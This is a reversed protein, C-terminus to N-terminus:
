GKEVAMACAENAAPELLPCHYPATITTYQAVIVPKRKPFPIRSQDQDPDASESHLFEVFKAASSIESAVIFQDVTNAVALFAHEAPSPQRSNFEVILEELAPKTLGQISVMPRSEIGSNPKSLVQCCPYHLQPIAGSLMQIGLIREGIYYLSNEDTLSAFVAAVAIGQSHGVAVNFRKVLEGPSIGLTKYLVMVHMLQILGVIPLAVPTSTLYPANPMTDPTTLWAFVNLGKSYVFSIRRDQSERQMFDSMHSVFDSLLPRYVDFLWVAEDITSGFGRQGGFLAMLSVSDSSFLAPLPVASKHPSDAASWASFYGRLVRQAAPKDLGHAQIIVHIDSEATGYTQCFADFVARAADSSGQRVCHQIFAAHLEIASSLETSDASFTHVLDQVTSDRAIAANFMTTVSGRQLTVQELTTM